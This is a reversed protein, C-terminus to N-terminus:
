RSSLEAYLRGYSEYREKAIEGAELATKVACGPEPIHSCSTFRCRGLFPRMEPYCRALEAAQVHRISLERVGPTDVLEGGFALEILTSATTTHRGRGHRDVDGSSLTVGPQVVGALKSKGVGSHGVLVSRREKLLARLEEVGYGTRASTEVFPLGLSRCVSFAEVAKERMAGDGLDIKNLCLAPEIGAHYAIVLYRDVLGTKYKPEVLASVIVVQDVNAALVHLRAKKGPVLRVLARERPLVRHIVGRANGVADVEVRDGVAVQNRYHTEADEFLRGRLYCEFTEIGRSTEARVSVQKGLIKFVTGVLSPSTGDVAAEKRLTM